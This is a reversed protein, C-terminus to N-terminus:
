AGSRGGDSQALGQKGLQAPVIEISLKHTPAPSFKLAWLHCRHRTTPLSSQPKTPTFLLHPKLINETANPQAMSGEEGAKGRATTEPIKARKADLHHKTEPTSRSLTYSFGTIGVKITWGGLAYWTETMLVRKPPTSCTASFIRLCYEHTPTIETRRKHLRRQDRHYLLAQFFATSCHGGLSVDGVDHSVCWIIATAFDGLSLDDACQSRFGSLHGDQLLQQFGAHIHGPEVEGMASVLVLLVSQVVQSLGHVVELGHTCNKQIGLYLFTESHVIRPL